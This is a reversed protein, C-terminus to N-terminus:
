RGVQDQLVRHGRVVQLELVVVQGLLGRRVVPVQHDVVGRLVLLVLVEQLVQPDLLVQRGLHVLVELQVLRVRQDRHAALVQPELQVWM